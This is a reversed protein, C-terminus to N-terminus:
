LETYVLKKRKKLVFSVVGAVQCPTGTFLVVKEQKLDELLMPLVGSMDSQVYKSGMFKDRGQRDEARSHKVVFMEDFGVGYVVGGADLVGDSLASFFGGSSSNFVVEADNHQVAYYKQEFKNEIIANNHPCVSVCVGCDICKETNIEPYKFGKEDAQMSIAGRPCINECATCGYCNEKKEFVRDM